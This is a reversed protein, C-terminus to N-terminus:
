RTVRFRILQKARGSPGAALIEIGYEGPALWALPLDFQPMVAPGSPGLSSLQRLPEGRSNVIAVSITVPSGGPDFAPVRILLQETRSFERAPSPAADPNGILVRFDRASRARVLQPPLIVPVSGGSGPTDVDQASTDLVAGDAALITADLQVRGPPVDFVALERRQEGASAADARNIRSQFLPVGETTTAKLVIVQPASRPSGLQMPAPQWTFMLRMQGGPNRVFGLWTQILPSRRLARTPTARTGDTTRSLWARWEANLPAWYGSPTRIQAERVKARVQIAHFRGDTPEAPQYILVYYADLDRAIRRLGPLLDSMNRIAEGGTESALKQLMSSGDDTDKLPSAAVSTSSDRPDVTYIPLKFHSAVRAVGQPDPLRRQRERADSRALGESVLVIAARKSGLEGIRMALERLANTVIQARASEVAEPTRGLYQEEFSTRPSYDGKRGDFKQILALIGDRERTFRINTVADLPKM